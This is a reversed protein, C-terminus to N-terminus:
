ANSVETLLFYFDFLTPDASGPLFAELQVKDYTANTGIGSKGLLKTGGYSAGNWRSEILDIMANRKKTNARKVNKALLQLNEKHRQSFEEYEITVIYKEKRGGTSITEIEGDIDETIHTVFEAYDSVAGSVCSEIRKDLLNKFAEPNELSLGRTLSDVNVRRIVKRRIRSENVM